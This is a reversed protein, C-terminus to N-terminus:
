ASKSVISRSVGAVSPSTVSPSKLALTALSVQTFQYISEDLFSICETLSVNVLQNLGYGSGNNLTTQRSSRKIYLQESPSKLIVEQDRTSPKYKLHFYRNIQVIKSSACM